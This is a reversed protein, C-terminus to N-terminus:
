DDDADQRRSAVVSSWWEQTCWDIEKWVHQCRPYLTRPRMVRSGSRSIRIVLALTLTMMASTSEVKLTLVKSRALDGDEHAVGREHCRDARGIGSRYLLLLIVRKRSVCFLSCSEYFNNPRWAEQIKTEFRGSTAGAQESSEHRNRWPSNFCGCSFEESRFNRFVNDFLRGCRANTTATVSTTRDQDGFNWVLFSLSKHELTEDKSEIIM